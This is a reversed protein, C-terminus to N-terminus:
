QADNQEETNSQDNIKTSEPASAEQPAAVVEGATDKERPLKVGMSTVALEFCSKVAFLIFVLAFTRYDNGYTFEAGVSPIIEAFLAFASLIGLAISLLRSAAFLPANARGLFERMDSLTCLLVALASFQIILKIPSNLEVSFDVYFKAVTVVCFLVQGYGSLLKVVKGMNFFETFCYLLSLLATVIALVAWLDFSREGPEQAGFALLADWTSRLILRIIAVSPLMAFIGFILNRNRKVVRGKFIFLSSLACVVTLALLVALPINVPSNIFYRVKEDFGVTFSVAAAAIIAVALAASVLKFIRFALSISNQQENM